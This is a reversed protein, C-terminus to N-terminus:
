PKLDFKVTIQLSRILTQMTTRIYTNVTDVYVTFVIVFLSTDCRTTVTDVHMQYQLNQVKYRTDVDRETKLLVNAIVQKSLTSM